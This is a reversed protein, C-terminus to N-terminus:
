GLLLLLMVGWGGIRDEREKAEEEEKEWDVREVGTSGEASSNRTPSAHNRRRHSM